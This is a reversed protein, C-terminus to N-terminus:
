ETHLAFFRPYAVAQGAYGHSGGSLNKHQCPHSFVDLVTVPSPNGLEDLMVSGSRSVLARDLLVSM